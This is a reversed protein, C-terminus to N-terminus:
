WVARQQNETSHYTLSQQEVDLVPMELNRGLLASPSQLVNM